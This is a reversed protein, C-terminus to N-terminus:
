RTSIVNFPVSGSVRYYIGGPQKNPVTIETPDAPSAPNAGDMHIATDIVQLELLATLTDVMGTATATGTGEKVFASFYVIGYEQSVRLGTGGFITKDSGNGDISLYVFSDMRRRDTYENAWLLPIAAYASAAWGTEIHSRIATMAAGFLM